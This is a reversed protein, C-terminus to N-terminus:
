RQGLTLSADLLELFTSPRPPEARIFKAVPSPGLEPRALLEPSFEASAPAEITVMSVAASPSETTVSAPVSAAFTGSTSASPQLSPYQALSEPPPPIADDGVRQLHADLDQRAEPPPMLDDQYGGGFERQPLTVELEETAAAVPSAAVPHDLELRPGRAEELDVTQGLQETTPVSPSSMGGVPLIDAELLEDIDPAPPAPMPAMAAQPGSEPPPTKLPVERGEQIEMQEAARALAEDMTGAIRSRSSSVPPEEESASERRTDDDEDDFNLDVDDLATRSAPVVAEVAVAPPSMEVIDDELLEEPAETLEAVPMVGSIHEAPQAAVAVLPIPEDQTDSAASPPPPASSAPFPDALLDDVSDNYAPAPPSFAAVPPVFAPAPVAVAPPASVVAPPSAKAPAVHATPVFVARAARPQAANRQVRALLEELRTVDQNM